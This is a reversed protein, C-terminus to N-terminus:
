FGSAPKVPPNVGAPAPAPSAAAPAPATPRQQQSKKRVDEERKRLEEERKLMEEKMELERRKMELEKAEIAKKSRESEEAASKKVRETEESTAKEKKMELERRKLELEKADIAKNARDSEEAAAIRRAEAQQIALTDVVKITAPRIVGECAQATKLGRVMTNGKVVANFTGELNYKHNLTIPSTKFNDDGIRINQKEGDGWEILLGCWPTPGTSQFVITMDVTNGMSAQPSAFVASKIEQAIVQKSGLIFIASLLFFKAKSSLFM